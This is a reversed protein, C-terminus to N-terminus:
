TFAHAKHLHRRRVANQSQRLLEAVLSFTATIDHAAATLKQEELTSFHLHRFMPNGGLRSHV